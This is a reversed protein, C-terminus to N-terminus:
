LFWFNRVVDSSRSRYAGFSLWCWIVDLHLLIYLKIMKRANTRSICHGCFKPSMGASRSVSMCVNELFPWITNPVDSFMYIWQFGSTSFKRSDLVKKRHIYFFTIFHRDSFINFFNKEFFCSNNRGSFYLNLSRNFTSPFIRIEFWLVFYWATRSFFYEKEKEYM